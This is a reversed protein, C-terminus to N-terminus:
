LHYFGEGNRAMRKVLEPPAYRPGVERALRECAAAFEPVGLTHIWGIPGGRLSPYGWGLVAGVDADQPRRVVGEDMCRATELSQVLLLRDCVEEASPQEARVPWIDALGPWLRKRGEAPYDYFGKGAKRGPRGLEGVM